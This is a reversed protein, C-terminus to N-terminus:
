DRITFVETLGAVEFVRQSTGNLGTLELAAGDSDARRNARVLVHCGSSDLFTVGSLDVVVTGPRALAQELERDLTPATAVDVEGSVVVVREGDTGPETSVTFEQTM